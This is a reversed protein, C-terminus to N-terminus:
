CGFTNTDCQKIHLTGIRPKNWCGRRLNASCVRIHVSVGDTNWHNRNGRTEYGTLGRYFTCGITQQSYMVASCGSIRECRGKCETLSVPLVTLLPVHNNLSGSQKWVLLHEPCEADVEIETSQDDAACLM